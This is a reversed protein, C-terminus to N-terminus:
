QTSHGFPIGNGAPTFPSAGYLLNPAENSENALPAVANRRAM